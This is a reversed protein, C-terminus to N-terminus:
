CPCASTRKGNEMESIHGRDIGFRYSMEAQSVAHKLRLVRLSLKMTLPLDNDPSDSIVDAHQVPPYALM